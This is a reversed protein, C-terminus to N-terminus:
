AALENIQADHSRCYDMKEKCWSKNYIVEPTWPISESNPASRWHTGPRLYGVERWRELTKPSVGLYQSAEISSVWPNETM